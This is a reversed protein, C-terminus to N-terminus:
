WNGVLLGGASDKERCCPPLKFDAKRLEYWAGKQGRQQL